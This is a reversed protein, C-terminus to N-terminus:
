HMKLYPRLPGYDEPESQREPPFVSDFRIQGSPTLWAQIHETLVLRKLSSPFYRVIVEDFIGPVLDFSAPNGVMYYAKAPTLREFAASQEEPAQLQAAARLQEIEGNSGGEFWWSFNPYIDLVNM